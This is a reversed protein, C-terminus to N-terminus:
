DVQKISRIGPMSRIESLEAGAWAKKLRYDTLDPSIRLRAERFFVKKSDGKPLTRDLEEFLAVCRDHFEANVDDDDDDQPLTIVVDSWCAQLEAEDAQQLITDEEPRLEIHDWDTPKILQPVSGNELVGSAVLEGERLMRILIPAFKADLTSTVVLQGPAVGKPYCKLVAHYAKRDAPESLSVLADYLTMQRGLGSGESVDPQEDEPLRVVVGVFNLGPSSANRLGDSPALSHWLLPHINKPSDLQEPDFGTARWTGEIFFPQAREWVERELQSRRHRGAGFAAAIHVAFDNSIDWFEDFQEQTAVSLVADRFTMTHFM